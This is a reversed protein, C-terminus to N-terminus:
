FKQNTATTRQLVFEIADVFARGVLLPKDNDRSWLPFVEMIVREKSQTHVIM